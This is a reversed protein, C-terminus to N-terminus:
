ALIHGIIAMKMFNTFFQSLIFQSKLIEEENRIKKKKKIYIKLYNKLKLINLRITRM